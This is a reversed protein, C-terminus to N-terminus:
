VAVGLVDDRLERGFGHRRRIRDFGRHLLFEAIRDLLLECGSSHRVRRRRRNLSRRLSKHFGKAIREDGNVLLMEGSHEMLLEPPRDLPDVLRHSLAVAVRPLFPTRLPKFLM